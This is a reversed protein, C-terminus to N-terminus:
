WSATCASPEARKGEELHAAVCPPPPAIDGPEAAPAHPAHAPPPKRQWGMQLHAHPPAPPPPPAPPAAPLRPRPWGGLPHTSAGSAPSVETCSQTGDCVTANPTRRSLPSKRTVTILQIRIACNPNAAPRCFIVRSRHVVGVSGRRVHLAQNPSCEQYLRDPPRPTFRGRSSSEWDRSADFGDTYASVGRSHPLRGRPQETAASLRARQKRQQTPV